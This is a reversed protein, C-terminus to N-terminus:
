FDELLQRGDPDVIPDPLQWVSGRRRAVRRLPPLRPLRAPRHWRAERVGCREPQERRRTAARQSRTSRSSTEVLEIEVQGREYSQCGPKHAVVGTRTDLALCTWNDTGVQVSGTLFVHGNETTREKTFTMRDQKRDQDTMHTNM